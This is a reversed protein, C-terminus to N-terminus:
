GGCVAVPTEAFGSEFEILVVDQMMEASTLKIFCIFEEATQQVIQLIRGEADM